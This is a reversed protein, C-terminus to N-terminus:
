SEPVFQAAKDRHVRPRRPRQVVPVPTTALVRGLLRGSDARTSTASSAIGTRGGSRSWQRERSCSTEERGPVKVLEESLTRSM